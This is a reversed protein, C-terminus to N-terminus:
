QYVPFETDSIINEIPEDGGGFDCVGNDCEKIQNQQQNQIPQQIPQNQQPNQIPQNQQNQQQNQIPQNTQSNQIPQNQQNQQNQNQQTNQIPQNQQNQNQQNTQQNQMPQNQQQNSQQNQHQQPGHHKNYQPYNNKKLFIENPPEYSASDNNHKQESPNKPPSMLFYRYIGTLLADAGWAYYLYKRYSSILPMSSLTSSYLLTHLIIYLVTGIIFIKYLNYKDVVAKPFLLKSIIFYFM